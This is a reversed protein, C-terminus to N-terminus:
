QQDFEVGFDPESISLLPTVICPSVPEGPFQVKGLTLISMGGFAKVANVGLLLDFRLPDKTTVLFEM